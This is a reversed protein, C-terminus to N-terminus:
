EEAKNLADSFSHRLPSPTCPATDGRQQRENALDIFSKKKLVLHPENAKRDFLHDNEYDDDYDGDSSSSCSSSSSSPSTDSSLRRMAISHQKSSVVKRPAGPCEPDVSSSSSSVPRVPTFTPLVPVQTRPPPSTRDVLADASPNGSERRSHARDTVDLRIARLRESLPVRYEGTFVTKTPACVGTDDEHTDVEDKPSDAEGERQEGRYRKVSREQTEVLEDFYQSMARVRGRGLPRMPTTPTTQKDSM